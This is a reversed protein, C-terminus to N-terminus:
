QRRKKQAASEKSFYCVVLSIITGTTYGFYAGLVCPIPWVQWPRDWDLPIVISGLWAGVVSGVTPYYVLKEPITEPSSDSFVRSWVPGHDKFAIAPPWIALLSIFLSFM